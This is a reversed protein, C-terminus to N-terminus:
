DLARKVLWILMLGVLGSVALLVTSSGVLSERPTARSRTLFANTSSVPHLKQPPVM